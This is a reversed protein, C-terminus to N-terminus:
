LNAVFQYVQLNQYMVLKIVKNAMHQQLIRMNNNPPKTFSIALEGKSAIGIVLIVPQNAVM